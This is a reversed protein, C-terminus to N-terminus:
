IAGSGQDVVLDVDRRFDDENIRAASRFAAALAGAKVFQRGGIPTLEGIPRGARTVVFSEGADLGRKIADCHHVLDNRTIERAM